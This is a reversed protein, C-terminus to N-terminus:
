CIDTLNERLWNEQEATDPVRLGRYYSVHKLADDVSMGLHTLVACTLMGSRGIGARCHIAINRGTLIDNALQSALTLFEERNAPLCFDAIPFITFEGGFATFLAKENALGLNKTESSGLMSVLKHIGAARLLELDTHLSNVSGPFPMQALKGDHLTPIFFIELSM